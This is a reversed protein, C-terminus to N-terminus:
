DLQEKTKKEDINFVELRKIFHAKMQNYRKPNKPDGITPKLTM